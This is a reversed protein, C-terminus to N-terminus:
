HSHLSTEILKKIKPLAEITAEEGKKILDDARYLEFWNIGVLNPHILVDAHHASQEAIVYESAQLTRLIIDPINISFAKHMLKSAQVGAFQFPTERFSVKDLEEMQHKVIDFSESAQGPSQLVNVGIIKKVGMRSLINTPLPNLVGGDIIVQDGKVVPALVGPIAISQRVADVLTGDSIILEERRILDYAVARFPIKLNNFTKGGLHGRLWNIISRDGILAAVPIIFPDYLKLMSHKKEFERAIVELEAASKGSAWMSGILAGMSSGVIFDIPINERELVRIVGVHAVGLAAGGGLAIGVMVGGIERAIRRVSKMYGSSEDCQFINLQKSHINQTIESPHIRPLINYIQFDLIRRIEETQLYVQDHLTRVIVHIREPKFNGKLEKELSNIVGRTMELDKKRDSSILHITDSQSLTEIVFDDMENPLDVLVYHYDGVLTSVLPGILKKLSSQAPNFTLNFIAIPLENKSISQFAKEYDDVISGLDVANTWKVTGITSTSHAGTDTSAQINVLITKKKTEKELSLALHTAYTSTGTGLVPSYISIINSEFITKRGQRHSRVRKSLSQSFEIALAPVSKLIGHFDECPLKLIVSDNLAIFSLSHNEGTFASIIGFHMGRHIFEVNDKIGDIRTNFAQVRGSIVCYFYDAPDGEQRILDGKKYENIVAKRAIKQQDLWGLKSFIPIQKVLNLKNLFSSLGTM